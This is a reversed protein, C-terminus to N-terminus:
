GEVRQETGEAAVGRMVESEEQVATELSERYWGMEGGVEGREKDGKGMYGLGRGAGRDEEGGEEEGRNHRFEALSECSKYSVECLVRGCLVM